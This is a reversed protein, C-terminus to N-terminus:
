EESSLVRNVLREARTGLKGEKTISRLYDATAPPLPHRNMADVYAADADKIRDEMLYSLALNYHPYPQDSALAIAKQSADRSRRYEGMLHYDWGLKLWVDGPRATMAATESFLADAVDFSDQHALALAYDYRTTVDMGDLAIAKALQTKAQDWNEAETHIRGFGAYSRVAARPHVGGAKQATSLNDWSETRDVPVDQKRAYVTVDGFDKVMEYATRNDALYRYTFHIDRYRQPDLYLFDAQKGVDNTLRFHDSQEPDAYRDAISKRTVVLEPQFLGIVTYSLGFYTEAQTFESPVYAYTDYVITTGDPYTDSLWLGAAIVPNETELKTRAAFVDYALYGQALMIIALATFLNRKEKLEQSLVGALIEVLIAAASVVPLLYQTAVFRTNLALFGLYSVYWLLLCVVHGKSWWDKRLIFYLAVPICLSIAPASPAYVIASVWSQSRTDVDSVIRRIFELDTVFDDWNLIAYPNTIGFTALFVLAALGGGVFLRLDTLKQRLDGSLGFILALGVTPTLVLGSYKTGMALGAFMSALLLTHLEHHRTLRVAFFLACTLFALQLVDPHIELTWRYVLPSSLIVATAMQGGDNAYVERVLRQAVVGTVVAAFLNILRLVVIISTDTIDFLLGYLSVLFVGLYPYIAGYTFGDVALSGTDVMERVQNAFAAEDLSFTQLMRIDHSAFDLAPIAAVVFIAVIYLPRTV